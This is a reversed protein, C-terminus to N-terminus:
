QSLMLTRLKKLANEYQQQVAQRTIGLEDGVEQFTKEEIVIAKVIKQHSEKLKSLYHMVSSRQHTEQDDLEKDEVKDELDITNDESNPQDLHVFSQKIEGKWLTNSPIRIMRCNNTLYTMMGFKILTLAYSHFIGKEPTYQNYAKVLAIKGEQVLDDIWNNQGFSQAVKLIYRHNKSLTEELTNLKEM